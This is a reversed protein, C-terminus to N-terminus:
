WPSAQASSFVPATGVNEGVWPEDPAAVDSFRVELGSGNDGHLLSQQDSDPLAADLAACLESTPATRLAEPAPLAPSTETDVGAAALATAQATWGSTDTDAATHWRHRIQEAAVGELTAAGAAAWDDLEGWLETAQDATLGLLNAVGATRMYLAVTNTRLSASVATPTHAHLQRYATDLAAWEQIRAVDQGLGGLVRDWDIPGPRVLYLEKRWGIGRDGRARAQDLWEAPVAGATAATLLNERGLAHRQYAGFWQPSPAGDIGQAETLLDALARSSNQVAALVRTQARTPTIM